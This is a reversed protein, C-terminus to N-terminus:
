SSHAGAGRYAAPWSYGEWWHQPHAAAQEQAPRARGDPQHSPEANTASLADQAMQLQMKIELLEDYQDQAVKRLGQDRSLVKDMEAELATIQTQMAACSGCPILHLRTGLATTPPEQSQAHKTPRQQQQQLTSLHQYSAQTVKFIGASLIIVLLSSLTVVAHFVRCM